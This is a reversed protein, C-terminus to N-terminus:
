CCKKALWDCHGERLRRPGPCLRIRSDQGTGGPSRFPFQGSLPCYQSSARGAFPRLCNGRRPQGRRPPCNELNRHSPTRRSLLPPRDGPPHLPVGSRVGGPPSSSYSEGPVRWRGPLLYLGGVRRDGVRPTLLGRPCFGEHVGKGCVGAFRGLATYRPPEHRVRLRLLPCFFFPAIWLIAGM